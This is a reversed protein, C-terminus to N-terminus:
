NTNTQRNNMDNKSNKSNNMNNQHSCSSPMDKKHEILHNYERIKNNLLETMTPEGNKMTNGMITSNNKRSKLQIM